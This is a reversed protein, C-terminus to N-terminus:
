WRRCLRNQRLKMRLTDRRDSMMRWTSVKDNVGRKLFRAGAFYRSRRAIVCVYISRGYLSIEGM